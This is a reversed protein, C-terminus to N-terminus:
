LSPTNLVTEGTKIDEILTSLKQKIYDPMYKQYLPSDEILGVYGEKVGLVKAKGYEISGNMAWLIVEKTLKSQNMFGCALITGPAKFYEDVNHLVIYKGETEARKIAGISAGGAIIDIVNVGSKIMSGALDSAKTADYWNGIVRYDIEFNENVLRIGKLFGPIIHKTILPYEQAVIFGIKNSPIINPLKSTNILAAAYGLIYSQEYQNFMYTAIKDNGEYYADTIIFKQNPFNKGVNVCLEPLAPNTTVVVDYNGDSIFLTLKEEWEAQNYGAEFIKININTNETQLEKAANAMMEYPPNGAIVGSIFVGVSFTKNINENSKGSNCSFITILIILSLLIRKM